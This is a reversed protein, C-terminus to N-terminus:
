FLARLAAYPSNNHKKTTEVITHPIQAAGKRVADAEDFGALNNVELLVLGNYARM